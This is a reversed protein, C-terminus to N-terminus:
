QLCAQGIRLDGPDFEPLDIGGGVGYMDEGLGEFYFWPFEVADVFGSTEGNRRIKWYFGL